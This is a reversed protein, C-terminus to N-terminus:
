GDAGRMTQQRREGLATEDRLIGAGAGIPQGQLEGLEGEAIEVQAAQGIGALQHEVVKGAGGAFIAPEGDDFTFVQDPDGTGLARGCAQAVLRWHACVDDQM